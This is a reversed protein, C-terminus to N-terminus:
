FFNIKREAFIKAIEEDRKEKIERIEKTVPFQKKLEQPIPLRRIFEMQMEM